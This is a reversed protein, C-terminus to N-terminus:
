LAFGLFVALGYGLCAMWAVTLVLGIIVMIRPWIRRILPYTVPAPGNPARLPAFPSTQDQDM